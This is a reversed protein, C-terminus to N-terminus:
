WLDLWDWARKSSWQSCAVPQWGPNTLDFWDWSNLFNYVVYLLFMSCSMSGPVPYIGRQCCGLLNSGQEASTESSASLELRNKLFGPQVTCITIMDYRSGWITIQITDHSIQITVGRNLLYCGWQLEFTENYITCFILAIYLPEVLFRLFTSLCYYSVLWFLSTSFVVKKKANALM